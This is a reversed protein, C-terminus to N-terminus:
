DLSKKAEAEYAEFAEAVNAMRSDHRHVLVRYRLTVEDGPALTHAERHPWSQGLFGFHRLLYGPHPYGPNAPHQFLAYGSRPTRRGPERAFSVGAWPSPEELRDSTIRGNAGIFRFPKRTADPRINFGGYGKNGDDQGQLVIDKDTLNTLTLVFDIARHVDDAHHVTVLLKEGLIPTGPDDKFHSYQEIEIVAPESGGGTGEWRQPHQAATSLGWTDFKRGLAITEPWAWFLGRHHFHDSPFDQTLIEGDLGCLPHFYGARRYRERDVGEPVDTHAHNYALVPTDGDFIWLAKGDDEFVLEGAANGTWAVTAALAILGTAVFRFTM